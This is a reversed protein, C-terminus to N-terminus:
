SHTLLLWLLVSVLRGWRSSPVAPRRVFYSPSFRIYTLLLLFNGSSLVFASFILASVPLKGPLYAVVPCFCSIGLIAGQIFVHFAIDPLFIIPVVNEQFFQVKGKNIAKFM